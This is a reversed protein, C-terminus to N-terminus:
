LAGGAVAALLLGCECVETLAGLMDGTVCGMRRKYFLITTTTIAIFAALLLMGVPGMALCIITPLLLGWFARIPIPESYFAQGIGAPRGYPLLRMAIMQTCRGFAPVVVLVAFRATELSGIGAWKISLGFFIAVVGMAGMRSDKMIELAKERTRRGYLGDATDGLGDVHLAGTVWVLFGLDVLASVPSPLLKCAPMDVLALMLGITLGVLPFYALMQGPEFRDNKRIRFITLFQLAEIFGRMPRKGGKM